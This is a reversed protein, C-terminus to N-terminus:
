RSDEVRALLDPLVELDFPKRLVALAGLREAYSVVDKTAIASMLIVPLRVGLAHLEYLVNLGSAGPMRIDAILVDAAFSAAGCDLGLLSRLETGTAVDTVRHGLRRLAKAVLARAADDDEALLIQLTRGTAM